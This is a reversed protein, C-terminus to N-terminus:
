TKNDSFNNTQLKQLANEVDLYEPTDKADPVFSYVLPSLLKKSPKVKETMYSVPIGIFITIFTGIMTYWYHSIKFLSPVDNRGLRHFLFFDYQLIESM